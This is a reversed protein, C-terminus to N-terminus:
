IVNAAPCVNGPVPGPVIVPTVVAAPLPHGLREAEFFHGRGGKMSQWHMGTQDKGFMQLRYLRLNRRGTKPHHTIVMGFTIFRGADGPWCERIVAHTFFWRGPGHRAELAHLADLVSRQQVGLGRSM